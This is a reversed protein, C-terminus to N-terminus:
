FHKHHLNCSALWVISTMDISFNPISFNLGDMLDLASVSHACSEYCNREEEIQEWLFVSTYNKFDTEYCNRQQDIQEWM